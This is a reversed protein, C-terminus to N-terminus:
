NTDSHRRQRFFHQLLAMSEDALISSKVATHHNLLPYNFLNCVSGAAGTKPEAAAFILRHIRANLIAGACMACPELTVYLDCNDLRYNNLTIGAETLAQMEAHRSINCHSVCQNFAASILEGQRVVVAGVPVEGNEAAQRAQALAQQMWYAMEAEPPFVAVPPHKKVVNLWNAKEASNLSNLQRNEALCVLQWLTSNTISLGQKKLLLFATVAGIKQLCALSTIGLNALAEHTKPALPPTSLKTHATM